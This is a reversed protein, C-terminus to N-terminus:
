FHFESCWCMYCNLSTLGLTNIQDKPVLLRTKWLSATELLVSFMFVKCDMACLLRSDSSLCQTTVHLACFAHQINQALAATFDRSAAHIHAEQFVESDNCMQNQILNQDSYIWSGKMEMTTICVRLRLVRSVSAPAPPDKPDLAAWDAYHTWPQSPSGVSVRDWFHLTSCLSRKRNGTNIVRANQWQTGRM